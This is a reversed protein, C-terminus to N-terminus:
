LYEKGAQAKFAASLANAASRLDPRRIQGQTVLGAECPVVQNSGALYATFKGPYQRVVSGWGSINKFYYVPEFPLFGNVFVGNVIVVAATESMKRALVWQGQDAPTIVVQVDGVKAPPLNKADMLRVDAGSPAKGLAAKTGPDCCVVYVKKGWGMGAILKKTVAINNAQALQNNKASGDNMKNLSTLPPFEIEMAREGAKLGAQVAAIAQSAIADYNAPPGKKVGGSFFCRITERGSERCQHEQVHQLKSIKVHDHANKSYLLQRASNRSSAIFASVRLTELALVFLVAAKM